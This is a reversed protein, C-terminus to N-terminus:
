FRFKMGLEIGHSDYEADINGGVNSFEPDSVGFYRYGLNWETQPLTQPAYAIGLMAQYSLVSDENDTANITTSDVEVQALGLGGGIYPRLGTYSTNFDYYANVMYSVISM